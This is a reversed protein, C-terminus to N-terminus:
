DLPNNDDNGDYDAISLCIIIFYIFLFLYLLKRTEFM